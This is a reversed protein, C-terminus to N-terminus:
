ETASAPFRCFRCRATQLRFSHLRAKATEDAGLHDLAGGGLIFALKDVLDSDVVCRREDEIPQRDQSRRAFALFHWLDQRHEANRRAFTQRHRCAFVEDSAKAQFFAYLDHSEVQAPESAPVNVRSQTAPFNVEERIAIFQGDRRIM